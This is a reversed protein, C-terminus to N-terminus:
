HQWTVKPHVGLTVLHDQGFAINSHVLHWPICRRAEEVPHAHPHTHAHAEKGYGGMIYPGHRRGMGVWSTHDIFGMWSTHDLRRGMCVM